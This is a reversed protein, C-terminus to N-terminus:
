RLGRSALDSFFKRWWGWDERYSQCKGEDDFGIATWNGSLDKYKNLLAEKTAIDPCLDQPEVERAHLLELLIFIPSPPRLRSELSREISM